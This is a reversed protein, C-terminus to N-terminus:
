GSQKGEEINWLAWMLIHFYLFCVCQFDDSCQLVGLGLERPVNPVDHEYYEYM